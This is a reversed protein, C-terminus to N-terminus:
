DPSTGSWAVVMQQEDGASRGALRLRILTLPMNLKM